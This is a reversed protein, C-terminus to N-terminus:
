HIDEFSKMIKNQLEDSYFFMDEVKLLKLSDGLTKKNTSDLTIARRLKRIELDLSLNLGRKKLQELSRKLSVIELEFKKSKLILNENDNSTWYIISASTLKDVNILFKSVLNFTENRAAIKKANHYIVKWGIFVLLSSISLIILSTIAPNQNLYSWM